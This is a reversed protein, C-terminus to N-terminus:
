MEGRKARRSTTKSNCAVILFTCIYLSLFSGLIVKFLVLDFTGWICGVVVGTDWIESGKARRDAMKSNCVMKPCNCQIM